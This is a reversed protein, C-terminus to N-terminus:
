IEVNRIELAHRLMYTYMYGTKPTCPVHLVLLVMYICTFAFTDDNDDQLHIM